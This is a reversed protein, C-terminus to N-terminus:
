DAPAGIRASISTTLGYLLRLNQLRYSLRYLFDDTASLGTMQRSIALYTQSHSSTAIITIAIAYLM